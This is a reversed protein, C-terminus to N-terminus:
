FASALTYGGELIDFRINKLKSGMRRQSCSRDPASYIFSRVAIPMEMLMLMAMLIPTLGRRFRFKLHRTHSVHEVTAQVSSGSNLCVIAAFPVCRCSNGSHVHAGSSVRVCPHVM